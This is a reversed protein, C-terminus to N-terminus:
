IIAAKMRPRMVPAVSTVSLTPAMRTMVMSMGAIIPPKMIAM